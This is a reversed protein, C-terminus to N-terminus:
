QRLLFAGTKWVCHGEVALYAQCLFWALTPPNIFPHPTPLPPPSHTAAEESLSAKFESHVCQYSPTPYTHSLIYHHSTRAVTVKLTEYM